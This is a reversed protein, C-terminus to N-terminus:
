CHSGPFDDSLACAGFWITSTKTVEWSFKTAHTVREQANLDRQWCDQASRDIQDKPMQCVMLRIQLDCRNHVNIERTYTPVALEICSQGLDGGKSSHVYVQAGASLTGGVLAVMVALMMKM